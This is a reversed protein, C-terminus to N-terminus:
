FSEEGPDAESAGGLERVAHLVLGTGRVRRGTGKDCEGSVPHLLLCDRYKAREGRTLRSSRSRLRM